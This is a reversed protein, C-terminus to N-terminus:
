RGQLSVRGPTRRPPEACEEIAQLIAEPAAHHVMHGAGPVEIFRSQPLMRHLRQSHTKPRVYRDEAGAVIVARTALQAYRPRMALVASLLMVSEQAAARLQEPQLARWVPFRSFYGPVPLPSFLLRLAAPWLLRGALPSLTHRLLTGLVPIAPPGLMLADPRATPFYYGSALVVGRTQGPFELGYALAVLSGWSHGVIVPRAIGLRELAARLLRAQAVPTWAIGRPRSSYGYGPRDFAVVRYKRSAQAPVGSLDFDEIMTGLGHLLVVPVGFGADVYHLRAGDVEIFRGHPPDRRLATRVRAGAFFGAGALGAAAALVLKSNM